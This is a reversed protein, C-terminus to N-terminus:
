MFRFILHYPQVRRVMLYADLFKFTTKTDATKKMVYFSPITKTLKIQLKVKPLLFLPVNSLDTHLRGFLKCGQQWEAKVLPSHIRRKHRFQASRGRIAITLTVV